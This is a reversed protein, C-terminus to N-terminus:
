RALAAVADPALARDYFRVDDLAGAFDRSRDPPPATAVWLAAVNTTPGSLWVSRVDVREGDRYATMQHARADFTVAVHHWAGDWVRPIRVAVTTQGDSVSAEIGGRLSRLAFPYAATVGDAKEILSARRGADARVWLAATYSDRRADLALGRPFPVVLHDGVGDFALAGGPRGRRDATPTAGVVRAQNSGAADVGTSDLRWWLVPEPPPAPRTSPPVAVCGALLMSVILAARATMPATPVSSV